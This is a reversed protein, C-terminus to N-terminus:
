VMADTVCWVCVRVCVMLIRIFCRCRLRADVTCHLSQLGDRTPVGVHDGDGGDADVDVDNISTALDSNPRNTQPPLSVIGDDDGDDDVFGDLGILVSSMLLM